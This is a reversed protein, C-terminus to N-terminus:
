QLHGPQHCRYCLRATAPRTAARRTVFAAVQEMLASVQEKLAVVEAPVTAQAAATKEQEEITLLLKARELLKDLDSIEGAARLQRSVYNPLSNLFQHLLLQKRTAADAEPM